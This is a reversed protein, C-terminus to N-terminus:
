SSELASADNIKSIELQERIARVAFPELFNYFVNASFFAVTQLTRPLFVAKNVDRRKLFKSVHGFERLCM